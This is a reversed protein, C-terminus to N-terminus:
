VMRRKRYVAEEVKEEGRLVSELAREGLDTRRWYLAEVLEEDGSEKVSRWLAAKDEIMEGETTWVAGVVHHAALNYLFPHTRPKVAGEVLARAYGRLIDDDEEIPEFYTGLTGHERPVDDFSMRLTRLVSSQECWILKRYDLPYTHALPPLALQGFIKHGLSISEYLEIFDYYFQYFTTATGLFSKAIDAMNEIKSSPQQESSRLLPALFRGMSQEIVPDRFLESQVTEEDDAPDVQELVFVKMLNLLTQSGTMARENIQSPRLLLDALVFTARLVQLRTANWAPPLQKFVPSSRRKLLANFPAFLWDQSLPLGAVAGTRINRAVTGRRLTTTVRLMSSLPRVPGVLVDLDPLIAYHLFPRLIYLGHPHSVSSIRAADWPLDLLTDVMNLLSTEDGPHGGLIASQALEAWGSIDKVAKASEFSQLLTYRLGRVSYVDKLAALSRVYSLVASEDAFVNMDLRSCLMFRSDALGAWVRLQSGSSAADLSAVAQLGKRTNEAFDVPLGKKLADKAEAGGRLTNKTVGATWAALLEVASQELKAIGLDKRSSSGSKFPDRVFDAGLVHLAEEAWELGGVQTWVLDHEKEMSHPDTASIVWVRLLDFYASALALEDISASATLRGTWQGVFLWLEPATSLLSGNLGYRAVSEFIRMVLGTIRFMITKSTAGENARWPPIALFRLFQDYCSAQLQAKAGSRSTMACALNIRLTQVAISANTMEEAPVPWELSTVFSRILTSSIGAIADAADFSHYCLALLVALLQRISTETLVSQSPKSSLLQKVRAMLDELPAKQVWSQIQFDVIPYHIAETDDLNEFQEAKIAAYLCAITERLLASNKEGTVLIQTTIELCSERVKDHMLERRVQQKYTDLQSAIKGLLSLMITRQPGFSSACLMLIEKITYGAQGAEEGHHHLGLHSPLAAAEEITLPRGSLDFRLSSSEPSGSDADQLWQLHANDPDEGPFYQKQIESPSLAEAAAFHVKRQLRSPSEATRRDATPQSTTPASAPESETEMAVAPETRRSGESRPPQLAQVQQARRQARQALMEMIKPSFTEQLDQLERQRESESMAAVKNENEAQIERLMGQIDSPQRSPGSSSASSIPASVLAPALGSAAVGIVPAQYATSSSSTTQRAANETRARKFASVRQSRHPVSPFGSTSPDSLSPPAPPTSASNREKIDRVFAM